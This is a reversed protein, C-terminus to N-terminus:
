SPILTFVTSVWRMRTRSFNFRAFLASSIRNAIAQLPCAVAYAARFGQPINIWPLSINAEGSHIDSNKALKMGGPWEHWKRQRQRIASLQLHRMVLKEGEEWAPTGGHERM